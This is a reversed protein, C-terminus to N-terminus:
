IYIFNNRVRQEKVWNNGKTYYKRTVSARKATNLTWFRGSATSSKVWVVSRLIMACIVRSSVNEERSCILASNSLLTENIKTNKTKKTKKDEKTQYPGNECRYHSGKKLNLSVCLSPPNWNSTHFDHVNKRRIVNFSCHLALDLFFSISSSSNKLYTTMSHKNVHVLHTKLGVSLSFAGDDLYWYNM